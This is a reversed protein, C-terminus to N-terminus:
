GSPVGQGQGVGWGVSEVTADFIRGPYMGMTVEAVQGPKILLLSNERFNAVVRWDKTDVFTMVATGANIYTGSTLQLNTVYGDSPAYVKARELDYKALNLEAHAKAILANIDGVKAAM